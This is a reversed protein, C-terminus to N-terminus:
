LFLGLEEGFDVQAGDSLRVCRHADRAVVESTVSGTRCSRVPGQLLRFPFLGDGDEGVSDLADPVFGLSMFAQVVLYPCSTWELAVLM